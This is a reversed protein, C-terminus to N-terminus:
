EKKNCVQKVFAEAYQCQYELGRMMEMPDHFKAINGELNQSEHCLYAELKKDRVSTIDVYSTPTFNQTQYGSMVEVYYLDFSHNTQMWADYVLVSCNRHDRHTDIPWHTIVIDPKEQEILALMEAYRESNVETCGDIQTLFIPRVGMVECAKIAEAHRIDRAESQSLGFIGGEGQTLYVSVVECGQEKLKLMTGACMSEPDDPHAGIALCKKYHGGMIDQAGVTLAMAFLLVTVLSIKRM